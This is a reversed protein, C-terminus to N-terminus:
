FRRRCGLLYHISMFIAPPILTVWIVDIPGRTLLVMCSTFCYYKFVLTYASARNHITSLRARRYFNLVLLLLLVHVFVSFPGFYEILSEAASPVISNEYFVFAEIRIDVDPRIFGPLVLLIGSLLNIGLSFPVNGTDIIKQIISASGSFAEVQALYFTSITFLVADIYNDFAWNEGFYEKVSQGLILVSFSGLVALLFIGLGLRFNFRHHILLASVGLLYIVYIRSGSLMLMFLSVLILGFYLLLSSQRSFLMVNACLGCSLVLVSGLTGGQKFNPRVSYLSDLGIISVYVLCSGLVMVSYYLSQRPFHGVQTNIPTTLHGAWRSWLLLVLGIYTLYLNLLMSSTKTYGWSFQTEIVSETGFRQALYFYQGVYLVLFAMAFGLLLPNDRKLASLVVLTYTVLCILGFTYSM